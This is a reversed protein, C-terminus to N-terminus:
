AAEESPAAEESLKEFSRLRASASRPNREVEEPSPRLPARRHLLVQPKAGCVCPLDSPCRCGGLAAARLEHKVIRDEGSHYSLVVGRGSPRLRHIAQRLAPALVELEDNVAIRLAQFSRKAPHGRRSRGKRGVASAVVAALEATGGLPRAAAIAKAIRGAHREDGYRRLIDALRDPPWTNVIEEASLASEPYMRMDLPGDRLYSFGRGPDDIQMSSLGLDFLVGVIDAIGLETLVEDLSDFRRRRLEVDSPLRERAAEIAKPDRDLGLLRLDSRRKLIADAHGGAGLTADLFVGSPVTELIESVEAVM